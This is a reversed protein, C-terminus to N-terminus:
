TQRKKQQAAPEYALPTGGEGWQNFLDARRFSLDVQM